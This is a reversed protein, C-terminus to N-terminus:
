TRRRLLLLSGMVLLTCSAPEPVKVIDWTEQYPDVLNMFDAYQQYYRAAVETGPDISGMLDTSIIPNDPDVAGDTYEDFLGLMHGFEHAAVLGTNDLFWENVSARGDGSQVTVIQDFPGDTTVAFDIPFEYTYDKLLDFQNNWADEIGQIWGTKAADVQDQTVGEGPVFNIQVDVYLGYYFTSTYQYDWNFEHNAGGILHDGILTPPIVPFPEAQATSIGMWLLLSGALSFINVWSWIGRRPVGLTATNM